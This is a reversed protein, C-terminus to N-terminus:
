SEGCFKTARGDASEESEHKENGFNKVQAATRLGPKHKADEKTDAACRQDNQREGKPVGPEGSEGAQRHKEDSREQRGSLRIELGVGGSAFETSEDDDVAAAILGAVSGGGRHLEEDAHLANPGEVRVQFRGEDDGDRFYSGSASFQDFAAPVEADAPGVVVGLEGVAADEGLVEGANGFGSEVADHEGREGDNGM